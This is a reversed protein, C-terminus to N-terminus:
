RLPFSVYLLSWASNRLEAMQGNSNWTVVTDTFVSAPTAGGSQGKYKVQDSSEQRGVGEIMKFNM